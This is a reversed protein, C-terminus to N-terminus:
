FWKGIAMVSVTGLAAANLSHFWVELSGISTANYDSSSTRSAAVVNAGGAAQLVPTAIVRPKAAFAIPFTWTPLLASWFPGNATNGPTQQVLEFTCIQTGDAFRVYEGNANSGRQIAAGTPVGSAQSVTGLINGTHYIEAWATWTNADIARRMWKRNGGPGTLDQYMYGYASSYNCYGRVVGYTQPFGAPFQIVDGINVTTRALDYFANRGVMARIDAPTADAAPWQPPTFIGAYAAVLSSLADTDLYALTGCAENRYTVDVGPGYVRVKLGGLAGPTYFKVKGDAYPGDPNALAGGSPGSYLAVLANDSERRVEAYVGTVLNGAADQVAREYKAYAM